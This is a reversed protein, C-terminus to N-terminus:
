RPEGQPAMWLTGYGVSSLSYSNAFFWVRGQHVEVAYYATNGKGAALEVV